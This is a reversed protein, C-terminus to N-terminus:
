HMVKALFDRTRQEKPHSFIDEPTGEELIVGKNLFVVRDSVEKAFGMEHTVVIMTRGEAALSRMVELVEGILEPDLASTAEDFLIVVPKIALVRAIAVRQKQGGSLQNPYADEKDELGVKCLMEKAIKSAEAKEMQLVHILAETINGTVNKHPWLNFLQFVFGIKTRVANLEKQSIKKSKKQQDAEYLSEGMFRILGGDPVELLNLCRLLTTKGSGSSGIISLVEGRQMNCNVGKLVELAGFNKRLDKVEFVTSHPDNM